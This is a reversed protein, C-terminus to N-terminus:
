TVPPVVAGVARALSVTEDVAAFDPIRTLCTLQYVGLRLLARVAPDLDAMPRDLCPALLWDLRGQWRLVGYVLETALARDARDLRSARLRSDLLINAYADTTEVRLLVELAIRRAGAPEEM